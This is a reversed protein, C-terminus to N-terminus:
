SKNISQSTRVCFINSDYYIDMIRQSLIKWGNFLEGRGDVYIFHMKNLDRLQLTKSYNCKRPSTENKINVYSVNLNAALMGVYVDEFKFLKQVLSQKYLSDALDISLLYAPGDCYPIFYENSYEEPSVYFKSLKDRPVKSNPNYRCIMTNSLSSNMSKLYNLLSFSNVIVDDDVKLVFKAKTCYKSVWKMGMITKLTLNYYSDLFDEQIIDGYIDNEEKLRQNVEETSNGVLFITRLNPFLSKNAWTLRIAQRNEFRKPSVLVFALLLVEQNPRTECIQHENNILYNFNHSNIQNREIEYVPDSENSYNTNNFFNQLVQTKILSFRKNLYVISVSNLNILFMSNFAILILIFVIRFGASSRMKDVLNKILFM